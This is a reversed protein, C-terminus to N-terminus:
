QCHKPRLSLGQASPEHIAILTDSADSEHDNAGVDSDQASNRLVVLCREGRIYFTMFRSTFRMHATYLRM